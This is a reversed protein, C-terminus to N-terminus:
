PAAAPELGRRLEALLAEAAPDPTIQEDVPIAQGQAGVVRGQEDLQVQLDGLLLGYEWATAYAAQSGDPRTVLLPYAGAELLTHSHGGVMLDIGPVQKLLALEPGYGLHALAIIVRVGQAELESVAQAAAATPDGFSVGPGPSSLWASHPTTLGFIGVRLGAREVIVWPRVKGVLPSPAVARLNASLLPFAAGASFAALPQDGRDFEHNGVAMADYGMANYFQLDAQGVYREFYRTGQFVDGADLLLLPQGRAASEARLAAVLTTRRTVGGQLQGAVLLPELHGHHDNSHLIRLTAPAGARAAAAPARWSLSLILLLPLLLTAYLIRPKM